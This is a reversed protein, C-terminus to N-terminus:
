PRPRTCYLVTPLTEQQSCPRWVGVDGDLTGDGFGASAVVLTERGDDEGSGIVSGEHRSSGLQHRSMFDVHDGQWYSGM